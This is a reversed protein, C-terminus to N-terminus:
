AAGKRNVPTPRRAGPTEDTERTAACTTCDVITHPASRWKTTDGISVFCVAYEEGPIATQKRRTHAVDHRGDWVRDWGEVRALDAVTAGYATSSERMTVCRKCEVATNGPITPAQLKVGCAAQWPQSTLSWITVTHAVSKTAGEHKCRRLWDTSSAVNSALKPASQEKKAAAKTTTRSSDTSDQEADQTIPRLHERAISQLLKEGRVKVRLRDAVESMGIRGTKGAFPGALIRVQTGPALPTLDRDNWGALWADLMHQPADWLRINWGPAGQYRFVADHDGPLRRHEGDPSDVDYVVRSALKLEDAGYVLEGEEATVLRVFPEGEEAPGAYEGVRGRENKVL